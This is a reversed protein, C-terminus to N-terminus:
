EDYNRPKPVISRYKQYQRMTERGVTGNVFDEDFADM